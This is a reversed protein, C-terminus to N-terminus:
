AEEAIEEPEGTERKSEEIREVMESASIIEFGRKERLYDIIDPLAEVTNRRAGGERGLLAGSDHFLIMGGSRIYIKIRRLIKSSSIWRWDTASVTWLIIRYGQEVLLRRVAQSYIGRPPRFLNTKAGTITEIVQDAKGVERLVLSRTSPVLDRHSYTHNGIDHGENVIRRALEPYKEVHKGIVFFTAKVKKEKLIDLIQATYSPSPGDDFSLSIFPEHLGQRIVGEQSGFGHYEYYSIFPALLVLLVAITGFFLRLVYDAEQLRGSIALGRLIVAGITIIALSILWKPISHRTNHKM